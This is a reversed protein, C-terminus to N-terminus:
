DQEAKIEPLEAMSEPFYPEPQFFFDPSQLMDNVGQCTSLIQKKM